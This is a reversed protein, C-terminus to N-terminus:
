SATAKYSVTCTQTGAPTGVPVDVWHYFDGSEGPAVDSYVATGYAAPISTKSGAYTTSYKWNSLALSGTATGKIAIDVDVNTETEVNVKIAPTGDSQDEDGQGTIPPTGGAFNISGTGADTLTISIVTSVHVEASVDQEDVAMAPVALAVVLILALSISILLKKV